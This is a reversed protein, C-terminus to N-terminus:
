TSALSTGKPCHGSPSEPNVLRPGCVSPTFTVDVKLELRSLSPRNPSLMLLADVTLGHFRESEETRSLARLKMSCPPVENDPFPFM